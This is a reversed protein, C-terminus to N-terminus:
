LEETGGFEWYVAYKLMNSVEGRNEWCDRASTKVLGLPANRHHGTVSWM